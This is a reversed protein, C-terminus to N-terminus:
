FGCNCGPIGGELAALVRGFGSLGIQWDPFRLEGAGDPLALVRLTEPLRKTYADKIRQRFEDESLMEPRALIQRRLTEGRVLAVKLPTDTIDNEGM